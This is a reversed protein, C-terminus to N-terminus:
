IEQPTQGIVEQGKYMISGSSAKYLGTLVNFSTTKGSGNPGLLGLVEGENIHMNLRDLATLGGFRMTLDTIDVLKGGIAHATHQAHNMTEANAKANM